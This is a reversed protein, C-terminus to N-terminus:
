PFSSTPMQRRALASTDAGHVYLARRIGQLFVDVLGKFSLIKIMQRPDSSVALARRDIWGSQAKM